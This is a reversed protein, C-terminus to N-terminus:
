LLIQKLLEENCSCYDETSQEYRDTTSFYFRKGRFSDIDKYDITELMNCITCIRFEITSIWNYNYPVQEMVIEIWNHETM